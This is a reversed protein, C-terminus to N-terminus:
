VPENRNPNPEPETETETRTSGLDNRNRNPNPNFIKGIKTGVTSEMFAFSRSVTWDPWRCSGEDFWSGRGSKPLRSSWIGRGIQCQIQWFWTEHTVILKVIAFYCILNLEYGDKSRMPSRFKTRLFDFLLQLNHYTNELISLANVIYRQLYIVCDNPTM